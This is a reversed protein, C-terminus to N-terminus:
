QEKWECYVSSWFIDALCFVGIVFFLLLSELSDHGLTGIRVLVTVLVASVCSAALAYLAIVFRLTHDKGTIKSIYRM